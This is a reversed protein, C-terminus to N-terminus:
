QWVPPWFQRWAGAVAVYAKNDASVHISGASGVTDRRVYRSDYNGAALWTDVASKLASPTVFLDTATGTQAQAASATAFNDVNGLGVQQKTVSHPNDVRSTHQELLSVAKETVYKAVTVPTLYVSNSTGADMQAQTAVPYNQVNGLGVQAKTVTHPNDTRNIHNNLPVVANTTISDMTLKPTMYKTTVTGATAEATSAVGYNLVSGLGVQAKTVSHPNDTRSTHNNLPVLANTTISELTRQPTMYRNSATGLTAESATAIPYNEVSGLGVQAKTVSHPNDTRDTHSKLPILAQYNIADATRLPTMYKLDTTGAQAEALTAVGYNLVSGLGVQAKTVEHPNSKNDRHAAFQLQLADIDTRLDEGWSDIYSYIEDHSATDGLLVAARLREISHVVYEFGYIDGADHFHSAPDFLPPRGVINGWEVPREGLNLNEIMAVVADMSYSYDGGLAQYTIKVRTVTTKTIVIVGFIEKGYRGTPFEFLEGFYYDRGKVLALGTVADKVIVGQAFFGGYTPAVCRVTRNSLQHEEDVVLNNPSLGTPDLNYRYQTVTM